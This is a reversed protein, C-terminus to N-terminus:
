RRQALVGRLEPFASDLLGEIAASVQGALAAIESLSLLLRGSTRVLQATGGALLQGNASLNAIVARQQELWAPALTPHANRMSALRLKLGRLRILVSVVGAVIAVVAAIM